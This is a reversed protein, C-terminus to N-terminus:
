AVSSTCRAAAESLWLRTLSVSSFTSASNPREAVFDEEGTAAPSPLAISSSSKMSGERSQDRRAGASVRDVLTRVTRMLDRSEHLAEYLTRAAEAREASPAIGKPGHCQACESELARASPRFSGAPGHCTSCVPTRTDGKELLAYHQSKQFAAFSSNHCAGCTASLNRRNVPSAPNLSDLVDRHALLSEFTTPDGGHCAECGVNNQRHPSHDWDALHFPAPPDVQAFHCDACRSQQSVAPAAFGLLCTLLALSIADFGKM